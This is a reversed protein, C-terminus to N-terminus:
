MEQVISQFGQVIKADTEAYISAWFTARLKRSRQGSRAVATARFGSKTPPIARTLDM